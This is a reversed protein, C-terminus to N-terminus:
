RLAGKASVLDIVEAITSTPAIEGEEISVGYHKQIELGLEVVALSDMGVDELSAEIPSGSAMAGFKEDLVHVIYNQVGNAM